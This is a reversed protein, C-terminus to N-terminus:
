RLSLCLVCMTLSAWKKWRGAFACTVRWDRGRDPSREFVTITPTMLRSVQFMQELVDRNPNELDIVIVDPDIEVIKRLLGLTERM